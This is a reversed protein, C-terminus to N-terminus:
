EADAADGVAPRHVAAGGNSGDLPGRHGPHLASTVFMRNWGAAPMVASWTGFSVSFHANPNGLATVARASGVTAPPRTNTPLWLPMTYASSAFVPQVCQVNWAFPGTRVPMTM